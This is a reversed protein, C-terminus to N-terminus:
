KKRRSVPKKITTTGPESVKPSAPAPVAEERWELNPNGDVDLQKSYPVEYGYAKHWVYKRGM